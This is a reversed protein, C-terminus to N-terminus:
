QQAGACWGGGVVCCVCQCGSCWRPHKVRGRRAGTGRRGGQVNNSYQVSLTKLGRPPQGSIIHISVILKERFAVVHDM